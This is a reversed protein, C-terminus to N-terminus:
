GSPHCIMWVWSLFNPFLPGFGLRFWRAEGRYCAPNHPHSPTTIVQPCTHKHARKSIIFRAEAAAGAGACVPGGVRPAAGPVRWQSPRGPRVRDSLEGWMGLTDGYCIISPPFPKSTSRKISKHDNIKKLYIRLLPIAPDCLSSVM